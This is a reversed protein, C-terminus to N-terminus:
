FLPRYFLISVFVKREIKLSGNVKDAKKKLEPEDNVSRVM